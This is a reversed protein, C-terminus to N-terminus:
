KRLIRWLATVLILILCWVALMTYREKNQVNLFDMVQDWMLSPSISKLFAYMGILILPILFWGARVRYQDRNPSQENRYQEQQQPQKAM